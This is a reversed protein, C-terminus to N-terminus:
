NTTRPDARLNTQVRLVARARKLSTLPVHHPHCPTTRRRYPDPTVMMAGVRQAWPICFEVTSSCYRGASPLHALLKDYQNTVPYQVGAGYDHEHARVARCVKEWFSPLEDRFRYHPVGTKPPLHVPYHHWTIVDVRPLGM